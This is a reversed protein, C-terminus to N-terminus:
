EESKDSANGGNDIDSKLKLEVCIGKYKVESESLKLGGPQLTAM